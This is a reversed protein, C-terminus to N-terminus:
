AFRFGSTTTCLCTSSLTHWPSPLIDVVKIPWPPFTMVFDIESSEIKHWFLKGGYVVGWSFNADTLPDWLVRALQRLARLGLPTTSTGPSPNM